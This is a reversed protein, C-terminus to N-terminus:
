FAAICYQLLISPWSNKINAEYGWRYKLNFTPINLLTVLFGLNAESKHYLRQM